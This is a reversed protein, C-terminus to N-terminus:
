MRCKQLLSILAPFFVPRILSVTYPLYTVKRPQEGGQCEARMREKDRLNAREQTKHERNDGTFKISKFLLPSSSPPPCVSSSFIFVLLSSSSSVSSLQQCIHQARQQEATILPSSFISPLDPFLTSTHCFLFPPPLTVSVRRDRRDRSQNTM